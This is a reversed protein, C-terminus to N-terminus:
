IYLSKLKEYILIQALVDKECYGIIRDLDLTGWYVKSVMSGDIDDKPSDIQLAACITDMSVMNRSGFKWIEITDIIHNLEWPKKGYIRFCEPVKIGNIIFRKILFPIDYEKINHGCLHSIKDPFYNDLLEAIKILTEKEQDPHGSISKISLKGNGNIGGYSFVVVKSFEAKLAGDRMLSQETSLGDAKHKSDWIDRLHSSITNANQCVTEIDFFMKAAM